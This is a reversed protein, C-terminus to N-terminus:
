VICKPASKYAKRQPLQSSETGRNSGAMIGACLEAHSAFEGPRLIALLYSPSDPCNGGACGMMVKQWQMM